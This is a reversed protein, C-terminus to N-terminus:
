FEISIQETKIENESELSSVQLGLLRVPKNPFIPIYLLEKAIAYIDYDPGIYYGLTKSRTKQEFDDYKIKITLTKGRISKKKLRKSLIECVRNLEECIENENTLDYDFTREAGISKRSWETIVPCFYENHVIEWYYIGAKGFDRVLEEKSRGQLDGGTFIGMKKMKQETVKGIYPIKGVPLRSIFELSEEPRIVFLGDPKNYDSAVKALFKNFSVGASATLMTKDNIDKKIMRAILTAYPINLKNSTVDLYAEDLSMPEVLDSYRRFIEMIQDSAEKYKDFRPKAFILEPCKKLATVSPMASHIGFKRAEYSAASVVSRPEPWGVAVPKGRLDPNDRQEISAFFADMDIHIIKRDTIM